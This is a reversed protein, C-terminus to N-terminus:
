SDQKEGTELCTLHAWSERCVRWCRRDQSNRKEPNKDAPEQLLLAQCTDRAMGALSAADRHPSTECDQQRCGGQLHRSGCPRGLGERGPQRKRTGTAAAGGRRNM